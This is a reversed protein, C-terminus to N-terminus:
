FNYKFTNISAGIHSSKAPIIEPYKPFFQPKKKPIKYKIKVVIKIKKYEVAKVFSLAEKKIVKPTVVDLIDSFMHYPNPNIVAITRIAECPSFTKIFTDDPM